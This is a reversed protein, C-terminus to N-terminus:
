SVNAYDPLRRAIEAPAPMNAIEEAVIRAADRFGDQGLLQKSKTTITEADFDDALLRAGAGAELVMEANSFQDAGQPLVLQPVGVGFAGLTTGSGGHHVVLDIYPLLDAQPVWSEIVVNDPIDGLDTMNVSPGAAVLVDADLSALGEIAQGLVGANGFATGLTLYVLPRNRDERALAPLTGPECFPVPRIAVRDAAAAFDKDQLSLPCIDLYPNGMLALNEGPLSVGLEAAVSAIGDKIDDLFGPMVRGFSHCMGPVDAVRAALAAGPNGAEHVVLDPRWRQLIPGLDHAFDRPMIEGFVQVALERIEPLSLEARPKHAGPLAGFAEPISRGAVIAEFGLGRLTPQFAEGTAFAVDHGADRAAIALPLLPYTHGHGAISSFLIRM